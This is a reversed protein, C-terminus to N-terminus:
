FSKVEKLKKGNFIFKIDSADALAERDTGPHTIIKDTNFSIFLNEGDTQLRLDKLISVPKLTEPDANGTDNAALELYGIKRSDTGNIIYIGIGMTKDSNFEAVLLKHYTTDELAFLHPVVEKAGKKGYSEFSYNKCTFVVHKGNATQTFLSDSIQYYPTFDQAHLGVLCFLFLVSLIRM